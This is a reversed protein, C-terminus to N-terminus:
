VPRVREVGGTRAGSNLSRDLLLLPDRQDRGLAALAALESERQLAASSVDAYAISRSIESSIAISLGRARSKLPSRRDIAWREEGEARM